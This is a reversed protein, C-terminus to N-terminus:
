CSGSLSSLFGELGDVLYNSDPFFMEYRSRVVVDDGKQVVTISPANARGQRARLFLSRIAIDEPPFSYGIIIWEDATRLLELSHKWTELLNVDRVDRILSPAIIVHRLRSHNCHCTNRSDTGREFGLHAITGYVNIYIHECMDCRLWNLSGHLKYLRVDPNSPRPHPVGKSVYPDRWDFGFDFHEPVREKGYEEFLETEVAVDYNTSIIGLSQGKTSSCEYLWARLKRLPAPVNYDDYPWWLVEFIAKELLTRFEILHQAQKARLPSISVLLSYDVLSLIETILPMQLGNKDFGPLLSQLYAKLKRADKDGREFDEFLTGCDIEKKILPLLENTLPFGFPKSAGAGMFIAITRMLNM